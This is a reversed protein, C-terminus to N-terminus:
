LEIDGIQDILAQAAQKEAARKSTGSGLAPELGGLTVEMVFEPAHDPGKRGVMTYEPLGLGKAQSWEQLATKPDMPPRTMHLLAEGMMGKVFEHVRDFGADLYLAGLLAEMTDALINDNQGGGAAKEADSLRVLRDLGLSRAALALNEGRVFATHRRAMDGEKEHPFAKYLLDAIILNVVRDGLFELREYDQGKNHVPAGGAGGGLGGGQAALGASAHTLARLLREPQKFHYGLQAEIQAVADDDAVVADGGVSKVTLLSRSQDSDTAM